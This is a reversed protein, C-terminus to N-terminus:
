RRPFFLGLRIRDVVRPVRGEPAARARRVML